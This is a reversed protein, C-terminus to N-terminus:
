SNLSSIANSIYTALDAKYAIQLIGNTDTCIINNGLFTTIGIPTLTYIIPTALEYVIQIPNEAIWARAETIDSVISKPLCFSIASSASRGRAYYAEQVTAKVGFNSCIFNTEGHKKDTLVSSALLFQYIDGVIGSNSFTLNDSSVSKYTVTLIGNIVDLTGGYITGASALSIPYTTGQYPEYETATDGVELQPKFTLNNCTYGNAIRIFPRYGDGQVATFTVGDGNEYYSMDQFEGDHYRYFQIRYTSGSGGEPCGSITYTGSKLEVTPPTTGGVTSLYFTLNAEATGNFTLSGDANRVMTIGYKTVDQVINPLINKGTRTVNVATYGSIPRVNDPSPDGSGEQHPEINLILSKVPVNDAGDDFTAVQVPGVTKTIAMADLYDKLTTKNDELYVAETKTVPYTYVDNANKLKVIKGM